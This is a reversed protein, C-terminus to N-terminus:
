KNRLSKIYKFIRPGEKANLKAKVILELLEKQTVKGLGLVECGMSEISDTMVSLTAHQPWLNDPKNSGGFCLPIFHDIKYSARDGSLSYGLRKYNEFILEKLFSNVNRECYPIQEPHRLRDPTDCLSGPTLTLDPGKPYSLALANLSVVSLLSILIIKMLRMKLSEPPM